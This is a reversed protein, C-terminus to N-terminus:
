YVSKATKPVQIYFDYDECNQMLQHGKRSSLFFTNNNVNISVVNFIGEGKTAKIKRNGKELISFALQCTTKISEMKNIQDQMEIRSILDKM